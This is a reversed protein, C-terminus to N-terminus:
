KTSFNTPSNNGGGMKPSQARGWGESYAGAQAAQYLFVRVQHAQSLDARVDEQGRDLRGPRRIYPLVVRIDVQLEASM